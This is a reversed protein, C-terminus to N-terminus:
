SLDECVARKSWCKKAEQAAEWDSFDEHLRGYYIAGNDDCWKKVVEVSQDWDMEVPVIDCVSYLEIGDIVRYAEVGATIPM